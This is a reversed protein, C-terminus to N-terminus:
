VRAGAVVDVVRRVALEAGGGVVVVVSRRRGVVVVVSARRDVVVVSRRRDVVVVVRLFAVVLVVRFRATILGEVVVEVRGAFVGRM